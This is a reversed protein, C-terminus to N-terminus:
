EKQKQVATSRYEAPLQNRQGESLWSEYCHNPDFLFLRDITKRVTLWIGGHDVSMRYAKASLTEDAYGGLISNLLQDFAIAVQKLSMRDGTHLLIDNLGAM